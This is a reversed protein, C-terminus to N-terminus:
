ILEFGFKEKLAAMSCGFSSAYPKEFLTEIVKNFGEQFILESKFEFSTVHIALATFNKELIYLAGSDGDAAFVEGDLWKVQVFNDFDCLGANPVDIKAVRQSISKLQGETYGTSRGIKIVKDGEHADSLDTIGKIERGEHPFGFGCPIANQIGSELGSVLSAIAGDTENTAGERIMSFMDSSLHGIVHKANADKDGGCGPQFVYNENPEIPFKVRGSRALVHSASLIGAEGNAEVFCGLTGNSGDLHSICQGICLPRNHGRLRKGAQKHNQNAPFEVPNRSRRLIEVQDPHEELYARAVDVAAGTKTQVTLSLLAKSDKRRIVGADLRYTPKSKSAQAAPSNSNHKRSLHDLKEFADRSLALLEEASLIKSM